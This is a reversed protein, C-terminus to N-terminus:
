EDGTAFSANEWLLKATIGFFGRNDECDKRLSEQSKPSLKTHLQVFLSKTLVDVLLPEFDYHAANWYWKGEIFEGEEAWVFLSDGGHELESFTFLTPHIEQEQQKKKKAVSYGKCVVTHKLCKKLKSWSQM